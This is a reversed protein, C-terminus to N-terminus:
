PFKTDKLLKCIPNILTFFGPILPSLYIVEGLFEQLETVSTLASMFQVAEVNQPDQHMCDADHMCGFLKVTQAKVHTNQLKFVVGYKSATEM